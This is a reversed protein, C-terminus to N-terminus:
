LDRTPTNLGVNRGVERRHVERRRFRVTRGDVAEIGEMTEATGDAVKDAGVISGFFGGGPGQTKPNVAREISYKVDAATVERGNTFKVGPQLRFTYALGDPAVEFGEALSPVLETTGPKYAMLRSFLSTIMSWNQWDYGIAPDLTSIDDKYTVVTGGGPTQASVTGTLTILLIAGFLFQKM